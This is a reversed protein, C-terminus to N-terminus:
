LVFLRELVLVRRVKFQTQGLGRNAIEPELESARLFSASNVPRSITPFRERMANLPVISRDLGHYGVLVGLDQPGVIEWAM